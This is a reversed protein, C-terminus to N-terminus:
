RSVGEALAAARRAARQTEALVEGLAEGRTAWHEASVLTCGRGRGPECTHWWGDVCVVRQDPSPAAYAVEDLEPHLTRATM